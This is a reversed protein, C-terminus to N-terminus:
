YSMCMGSIQRAFDGSRFGISINHAIMSRFSTVAFTLVSSSTNASLLPDPVFKILAHDVPQHEAELSPAFQAPHAAALRGRFKKGRAELVRTRRVHACRRLKVV